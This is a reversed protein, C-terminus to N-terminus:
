VIFCFALRYNRLFKNKNLSGQVGPNGYYVVDVMRWQKLDQSQMPTVTPHKRVPRGQESLAEGANM